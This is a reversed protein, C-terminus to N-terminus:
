GGAFWFRIHASFDIFEIDTRPVLIISPRYELVLDLPIPDIVFELGIIGSVGAKVGADNGFDDEYIGLLGGVGANWALAVGDESFLDPMEKLFDISFGISDDDRGVDLVGVVGQLALDERLMYKGSLGTVALGGGIGIGFTKGTPSGALAPNSGILGLGAAGLLPLLSRAHSM